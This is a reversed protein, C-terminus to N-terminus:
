VKLVQQGRKVITLEDERSKNMINFNSDDIFIQGALYYMCQSILSTSKPILNASYLSRILMVTMLLFGLSAAGNGQILGQFPHSDSGTYFTESIRYATLLYM